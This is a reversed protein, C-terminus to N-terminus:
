FLMVLAPPFKRLAMIILQSWGTMGLSQTIASPDKKKLCFSVMESWCELLESFKM